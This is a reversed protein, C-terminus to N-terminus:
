HDSLPAIEHCEVIRMLPYGNEPALAARCYSFGVRTVIEVNFMLGSLESYGFVNKKMVSSDLRVTIEEVFPQLIVAKEIAAEVSGVSEQSIPTGVWQHYLAGLKIGAEFAAQERDSHEGDRHRQQM